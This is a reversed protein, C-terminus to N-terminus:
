QPAEPAYMGAAQNGATVQSLYKISLCAYNVDVHLKGFSGTGFSVLKFRQKNIKYPSGFLSKPLIRVSRAARLEGLLMTLAALTLTVGFPCLSANFVKSKCLTVLSPNNKALSIQIKRM